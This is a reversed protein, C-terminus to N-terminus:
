FHEFHRAVDMSVYELDNSLTDIRNSGGTRVENTSRRRGGGEKYLGMLLAAVAAFLATEGLPVAPLSASFSNLLSESAVNSVYTALAARRSPREVLISLFSVVFSSYYFLRLVQVIGAM